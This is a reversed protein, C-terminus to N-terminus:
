KVTIEKVCLEYKIYHWQKKSKKLLGKEALM